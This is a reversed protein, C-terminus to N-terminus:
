ENTYNNLSKLRHKLNELKIKNIELINTQQKILNELNHIDYNLTKILETPHEEKTKM